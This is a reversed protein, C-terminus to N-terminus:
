LKSNVSTCTVVDERLQNRITPHQNLYRRIKKPIMKTSCNKSNELPKNPTESSSM